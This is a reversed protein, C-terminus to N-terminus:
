FPIIICKSIKASIYQFSTVGDKLSEKLLNANGQYDVDMYRLGDKQRTIGITTFVWDINETLGKLTEAETVQGVFFDDVSNFKEKQAESRILVRVWYGREKLEDVLYRGLYGTAGAVLVKKTEM